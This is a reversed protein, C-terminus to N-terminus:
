KNESFLTPLQCIRCNHLADHSQAVRVTVGKWGMDAVLADAEMVTFLISQATRLGFVEGM